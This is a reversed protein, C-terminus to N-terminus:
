SAARRALEEIAEGLEQRRDLRERGARDTTGTGTLELFPEGNVYTFVWTCSRQTETDRYPTANGEHRSYRIVEGRLARVLTSELAGADTIHLTHLQDDPDLIWMTAADESIAWVPAARVHSVARDIADVPVDGRGAAFADRVWENVITRTESERM